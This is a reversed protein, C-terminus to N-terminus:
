HTKFSFRPVHHEAGEEKGEMIVLQPVAWGLHTSKELESTLCAGM